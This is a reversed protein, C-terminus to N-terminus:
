QKPVGQEISAKLTKTNWQSKKFPRSYLEQEKKTQFRLVTKEKFGM